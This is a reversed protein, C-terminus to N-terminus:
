RAIPTWGDDVGGGAFLGFFLGLRETRQPRSRVVRAHVVIRTFMHRAGKKFPCDIYHHGRHREAHADVLRIYARHYVCCQRAADLAIVLLYASGSAVPLWTSRDKEM